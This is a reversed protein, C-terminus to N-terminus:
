AVRQSDWCSARAPRGPARAVAEALRAAESLSGVRYVAAAGGHVVVWDDVGEAALFRRWGEEGM